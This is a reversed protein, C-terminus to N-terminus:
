VVYIANTIPNGAMINRAGLFSLPIAVVMALATGMIGLFITIIILGIAGDWFTEFENQPGLVSWDFSVLQRLVGAAYEPNARSVDIDTIRFGVYLVLLIVAITSLRRWDTLPNRRLEAPVPLGRATFYEAM